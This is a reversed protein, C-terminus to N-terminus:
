RIVLKQQLFFCVSKVTFLKKGEKNIGGRTKWEIHLSYGQSSHDIAHDAHLLDPTHLFRHSVRAPVHRPTRRTRIEMKIRQELHVSLNHGDSLKIFLIVREDTGGDTTQGVALYDVINQEVDSGSFCLDLVDYLESSGFRVGGPNRYFSNANLGNVHGFLRPLFNFSSCYATQAGSCSCEGETEM